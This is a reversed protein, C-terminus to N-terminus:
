LIEIIDGLSFRLDGILLEPYGKDFSVGTVVGSVYGTATVPTGDDDEGSVTFSYSGEPLRNGDADCGDWTVSTMGSDCTGLKIVRLVHGDEDSLTVEVKATNQGFDFSLVADGETALDVNKSAVTVQRGVLSATAMSNSAAEAMALTNLKDNMSIMQELGSFQALQAVFESSDTPNLPDQHSLQSILLKLFDNQAMSAAGQSSNAQASSSPTSNTIQM